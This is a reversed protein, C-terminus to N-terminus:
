KDGSKSHLGFAQIRDTGVFVTGRAIAPENYKGSTHLEGPRSQWLVKFTLAEVAYLIPKAATEGYLSGSRPANMDLVWVIANDYGDSSIVPSGPNEFVLTQELQDIQPYAPQGPVTVIKVRVLCPPVNIPSSEDQKSNGAVLLYSTGHADRFYAATSRNKAQDMLGYKDSYPGFLNLPGRQGFHPQNDPSLLSRDGSSDTSCAPRAVLSGPMNIRDLLYFNGQKGGGLALLNPTNTISPDLDIVIPSSSGLDIDAAAAQCYNFPTYTGQLTFGFDPSDKLQIISQGWNHESDPFVGAIGAKRMTFVYSAGTSVHINGQMDISPGGSSWMGGQHEETVATASFATAVEALMTDVAVIWGSANDGGFTMYLRSGDPSLNLAGRQLVMLNDPFLTAGNKNIGPKNVTKHNVGVPWGTIGQGNRIDLVHVRWQKDDDCSTVYLRHRSLDIVPTSLNGFYGKFCPKDVLRTRWLVTGPLVDHQQSTNVAYVYGSSVAAFVVSFTKGMHNGESIEVKDVYLPSAYMRPPIEGSSEFQESEWLLGFATSSVTEPTLVTEHANWGTRQPDQHYTLKNIDVFATVSISYILSIIFILSKLNSMRVLLPFCKNVTLLLRLLRM